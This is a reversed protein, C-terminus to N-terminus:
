DLKDWEIDFWYVEINECGSLRMGFIVMAVPLSDVFELQHKKWNKKQM